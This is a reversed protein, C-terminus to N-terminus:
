PNLTDAEVEPGLSPFCFRPAHLPLGFRVKGQPTDSRLLGRRLLASLANVATRGGLGTVRKFEGREIEAGSLFLYHLARRAEIRLGSRLSQQEFVLSAGIRPEIDSLKLVSKMFQAQDLCVDLVYDIWDVRAQESLNGRGDPDGRRPDDAAALLADYRETSRAFGRRM